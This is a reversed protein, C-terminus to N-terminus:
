EWWFRIEAEGTNEYYEIVVDHPGSTLYTYPSHYESRGNHWQDVLVEGDIKLRVGDDAFLFFRYFGAHLTRQGTWRVSFSDASPLAAVPKSEGWDFFLLCLLGVAGMTVTSVLTGSIHGIQRGQWESRTRRDHNM